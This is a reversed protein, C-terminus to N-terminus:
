EEIATNWYYLTGRFDENITQTYIENNTSIKVYGKNSIVTFDRLYGEKINRLFVFPLGKGRYDEGTQSRGTETFAATILTADMTNQLINPTLDSVIRQLLMKARETKGKRITRAIGQGNDLITFSVSKDMKQVSIYWNHKYDTDQPSYAHEHANGLFELLSHYLKKQTQLNKNNTCGAFKLVEKVISPEVKLGSRITFIKSNRASINAISQAKIAKLFGYDIILQSIEKSDSLNGEVHGRPKIKRQADLIAVVALLADVSVSIIYKMDMFIRRGMSLHFDMCNIFHAVEEPNDRYSFNVPAILHQGKHKKDTPLSTRKTYYKKEQALIYQRYKKVRRKQKTYQKHKKNLSRQIRFCVNKQHSKYIPELYIRRM